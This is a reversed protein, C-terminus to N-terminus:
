LHELMETYQSSIGRMIWKILQTPYRPMIFADDTDEIFGATTSVETETDTKNQLEVMPNYFLIFFASVLIITIVIKIM